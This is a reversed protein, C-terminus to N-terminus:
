EEDSTEAICREMSPYVFPLVIVLIIAADMVEGVAASLVVAALLIVILVNAFQGLFMRLPSAREEHTLENPGHRSLREEAQSASLGRTPDTDLTRAVDDTTMAHWAPHTM